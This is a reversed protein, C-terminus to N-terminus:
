KSSLGGAVTKYLALVHKVWSNANPAAVEIKEKPVNHIRVIENRMWESKVSVKKAEYLALWEISKISMSYPADATPSRHDELSEVSYVFPIDLANKLTVAAPIFHWDYVDILDIQNNAQYYISAAAREVEQNLTLDWTLVGIHTRVPNAVRVVKVGSTEEVAGTLFDHYTVVHTEVKNKVLQTSLTSVYEALHGVVRPPYEWSFIIVHM